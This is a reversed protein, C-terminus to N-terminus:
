KNKRKLQIKVILINVAYLFSAAWLVYTPLHPLLWAFAPGLFLIFFQEDYATYLQGVRRIIRKQTPIQPIEQQKVKPPIRHGVVHVGYHFVVGAGTAIGWVLGFERYAGWALAVLTLLKRVLDIIPDLKRGLETQKNTM